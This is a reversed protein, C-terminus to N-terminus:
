QKFPNIVVMGRYMQGANLDESVIENCGLREAASVILADYFQIGYEEAVYLAHRVLDYTVDIAWLDRFYDLLADLKERPLGLKRKAVCCFEQIVQTSVVGDRNITLAHAILEKAIKQRRPDADDVAYILVNSDFFRM